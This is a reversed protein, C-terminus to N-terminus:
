ARSGDREALRANRAESCAKVFERAKEVSCLPKRGIAETELKVGYVGKTCWRHITASSRKLGTAKEIAEAVEMLTTEMDNEEAHHHISSLRHQIRRLVDLVM